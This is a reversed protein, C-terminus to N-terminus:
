LLRGNRRPYRARLYSYLYTSVILAAASVIAPIFFVNNWSDRLMAIAWAIVCVVTLLVALFRVILVLTTVVSWLVVRTQESSNANM